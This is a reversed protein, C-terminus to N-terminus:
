RNCNIHKRHGTTTLSFPAYETDHKPTQKHDNDDVDNKNDEEEKQSQKPAFSLTRQKTVRIKTIPKGDGDLPYGKPYISEDHKPIREGNGHRTNADDYHKDQACHRKPM